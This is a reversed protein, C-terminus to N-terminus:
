PATTTTSSAAGGAETSPTATTETSANLRAIEAKVTEVMSGEPELQLYRNWALIAGATNGAAREASGLMLFAQPDSPNLTTAANLVRVASAYDAADPNMYIAALKMHTAFDDPKLALYKELYAAQQASQGLGEYVVALGLLATTDEPNAALAAEYAKIQEEPGSPTSPTDSGGISAWLDGWNLGAGSGIGLFLFSVGFVIALALSVWKAWRNIRRRDLLM